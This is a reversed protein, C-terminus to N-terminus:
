LIGASNIKKLEKRRQKYDPIMMEVNLWFEKSHNMHKTHALEHCIVYDILSDDLTILLSSLIINRHSDCSGWRSKLNKVM